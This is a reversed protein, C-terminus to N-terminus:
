LERWEVRSFEGNRSRIFLLSGPWHGGVYQNDTSAALSRM